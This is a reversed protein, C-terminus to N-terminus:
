WRLEGIDPVRVGRWASPSWRKLSRIHAAPLHWERAAEVVINIYAPRPTGRGNRRAYYVLAAMTRGKRRVPLTRHLYLGTDVSEYANIAVLDRLTVRWLVGHLLSGAHPVITGVGDPNIAFRWGTLTAVGLATAYPCRARMLSRSMNSGYAFHLTVAAIVPAHRGM